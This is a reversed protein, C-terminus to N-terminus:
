QCAVGSIRGLVPPALPSSASSNATLYATLADLDVVGSLRDTGLKFVAFGDGGGALFSNVTVRYSANPDVVQGNVKVTAPDVSFVKLNTDYTYSYSLSRPVQLIAGNAFQEDLATLVQAGTLTMTVLNNSFPQVAFADGYTITGDAKGPGKALLDTRIGGPNMFSIVASGTGPDSTAALQADAILDGLPTECSTSGAVTVSSTVDGTVYGVVRNALPATKTEYEAVIAAVDPDPAVDRTVPVNQAKKDVVAGQETDITLEIKTV